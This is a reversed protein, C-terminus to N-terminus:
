QQSLDTLASKNSIFIYINDFHIIIILKPKRAQKYLFFFCKSFIWDFSNAFYDMERWKNQNENTM